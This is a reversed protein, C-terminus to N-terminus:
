CSFPNSTFSFLHVGNSVLRVVWFHLYSAQRLKTLDFSVNLSHLSRPQQLGSLSTTLPLPRKAKPEDIVVVVVGRIAIQSM